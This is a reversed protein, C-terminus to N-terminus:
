LVNGYESHCTFVQLFEQSRLSELAKTADGQLQGPQAGPIVRSWESEECGMVKEEGKMEEAQKHKQGM